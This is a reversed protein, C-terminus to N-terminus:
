RIGERTEIKGIMNNDEHHVLFIIYKDHTLFLTKYFPMEKSDQKSKFAQLWNFSGDSYVQVFSVQTRLKDSDYQKVPTFKGDKFNAIHDNFMIYMGYRDRTIAYGNYDNNTKYEKQRKAIYANGTILGTNDINTIAIDRFFRADEGTPKDGRRKAPVVKSDYRQEGVMIVNGGIMPVLHDVYTTFQSPIVLGNSNKVPRVAKRDKPNAKFPAVMNDTEYEKFESQSFNKQYHRRKDFTYAFSGDALYPKENNSGYYGALIYDGETNFCCKMDTAWAKEMQLTYGKNQYQEMHILFAKDDAHNVKKGTAYGNIALLARKGDNSVAVDTVKYSPMQINKLAYNKDWLMNMRDDYIRVNANRGNTDNEFLCFVMKTKNESFKFLYPSQQTSDSFYNYSIFKQPEGVLRMDKLHLYEVYLNQKGTNEKAANKLAASQRKTEKPKDQKTRSLIFGVLDGSRWTQEIKYKPNGFDIRAVKQINGQKDSRAIYYKYEFNGDGIYEDLCYYMYYGDIDEALFEAQKCNDKIDYFRKGWNIEMQAYIDACLVLAATFLLLKRM